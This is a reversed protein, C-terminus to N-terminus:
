VFGFERGWATKDKKGSEAPPPSGKAPVVSPVQPRQGRTANAASARALEAAKRDSEQKARTRLNAEYDLEAKLAHRDLVTEGEHTTFYSTWRAGMRQELAQREPGTFVQQYEPLELFDSLEEEFATAAAHHLEAQQAAPDAERQPEMKPVAAGLREYMLDLREKLLPFRADYEVALQALQEPNQLMGYVHEFMSRWQTAEATGRQSAEQVRQQFEQERQRWTQRHEVGESLLQKVLPVQSPPVKLSGDTDYTAGDIAHQQGRARFAFPRAPATEPTPVVATTPQAPPEGPPRPATPDGDAPTASAPDETATKGSAFRGHDDRPQASSEATPTGPEEGPSTDVVGSEPAEPAGGAQTPEEGATSRVSEDVDSM